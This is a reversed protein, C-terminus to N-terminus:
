VPPLLLPTHSSLWNHITHLLWPILLNFHYLCDPLYHSLSILFVLCLLYALHVPCSLCTLLVLCTLCLEALDRGRGHLAGALVKGTSSPRRDKSCSRAMKSQPPRNDCIPLCPEPPWLLHVVLPACACLAAFHLFPAGLSNM